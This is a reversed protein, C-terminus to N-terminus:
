AAPGHPPIWLGPMKFYVFFAAEDVLCAFHDEIGSIAVNNVPPKM